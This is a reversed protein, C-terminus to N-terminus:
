LKNAWRLQWPYAPHQWAQAEVDRLAADIAADELGETRPTCLTVFFPEDEEGGPATRELVEIESSDLGLRQAVAARSAAVKQPEVDTM